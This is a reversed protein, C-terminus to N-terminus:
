RFVEACIRRLLLGNYKESIVEYERSFAVIVGGDSTAVAGHLWAPISISDPFVSIGWDGLMKIGSSDIHHLRLYGDTVQTSRVTKIPDNNKILDTPPLVVSDFALWIGGSTDPVVIRNGTKNGDPLIDLGGTPWEAFAPYTILSSLITIILPLPTLRNRPARIM